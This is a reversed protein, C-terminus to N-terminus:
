TRALRRRIKEISFSRGHGPYFTSCGTDVLRNLSNLLQKKNNAFPPYVTHPLINFLTDGVVAYTNDIIVSVSGSTHGPTHIVSVGPIYSSLDYSDEIVIDPEVPEFRNKEKFLLGSIGIAIKSFLGTGRPLSAYGAALHSAEDKHVLVKASSRQKIEKLCGAYDYHTHTLLILIIDNFSIGRSNMVNELRGLRGSSGTDVLIVSSERKILYANSFGMSVSIIETATRDSM